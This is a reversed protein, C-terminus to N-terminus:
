LAKVVELWLAAGALALLSLPGLIKWSLDTIQDSRLRPTVTGVLSVSLMLLFTKILTVSMELWVIVRTAGADELFGV